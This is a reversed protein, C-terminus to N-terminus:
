WGMYRSLRTLLTQNKRWKQSFYGVQCLWRSSAMIVAPILRSLSRFDPPWSTKTAKTPEAIAKTPSNAQSNAMPAKMCSFPPWCGIDRVNRSWFDEATKILQKSAPAVDDATVLIVDLIRVPNHLMWLSVSPSEGPLTVKIALSFEYIWRFHKM